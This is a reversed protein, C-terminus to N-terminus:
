HDSDPQMRGSTTFIVFGAFIVERRELHRPLIIAKISICSSLSQFVITTDPNKLKFWHNGVQKNTQQKDSSQSFSFFYNSGKQPQLNNKTKVGLHQIFSMKSM